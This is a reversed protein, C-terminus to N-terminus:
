KYDLDEWAIGAVLDIHISYDEDEPNTSHKLLDCGLLGSIKGNFRKTFQCLEPDPFEILEEVM